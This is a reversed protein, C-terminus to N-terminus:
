NKSREEEPEIFPTLLLGNLYQARQLTSFGEIGIVFETQGGKPEDSYSFFLRDWLSTLVGYNSNTENMHYKSHHIRHMDPTVFIWRLKKDLSVPLYGNTHTFLSLANLLIEFAIVAVVSPGLLAILFLKYLMSIIMELPHFRIASTVDLDRDSHHMRHMRWFLPVTHFLRHQWYIALDLLVIVLFTEIWTPWELWVFLGWQQEQVYIAFGVALVPLAYRLLLTNILMLSLNNLWRLSKSVTLARRPALWEWGALLLFVSLFSIFRLSGENAILFAESM